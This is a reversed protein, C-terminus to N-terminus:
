GSRSWSPAASGSWSASARAPEAHARRAQRRRRRLVAAVAADAGRVRGGPDRGARLLQRRGGHLRAPGLHLLRGAEPQARELRVGPPLGRRRRVPGRRRDGWRDAPARARADLGRRPRRRPVLRALGPSGPLRPLRRGRGQGRRLGHGVGEPAREARGGGRPRPRRDRRLGRARHHAGRIARRRARQPRGAGHGPGPTVVLIAAVGCFAMLEPMVPVTPQFSRRAVDRDNTM